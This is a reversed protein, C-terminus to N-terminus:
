PFEVNEFRIFTWGKSTKSRGTSLSCANCELKSLNTTEVIEGQPNKFFYIRKKIKTNPLCYGQSSKHAGCLMCRFASEDLNNKKTFDVVNHFKIIHGTEVHKVTYQKSMNLRKQLLDQETCNPLCYGQSTTILGCLLNRFAKIKINNQLCWNKLHNIEIIEQTSIKKVKYIKIKTKYIKIKHKREQKKPVFFKGGEGCERVNYGKPCYTNLKEAYYKERESLIDQCKIESEIIYIEFQNNPNKKIVRQLCINKTTKMWDYRYREKFSKISCGIYLKNNYCNKICYIIGKLKNLDEKKAEPIIKEDIKLM